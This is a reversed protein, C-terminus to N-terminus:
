SPGPIGPIEANWNVWELWAWFGMWADQPMTNGQGDEQMFHLKVYLVVSDCPDLQEISGPVGDKNGDVGYFNKDLIKIWPSLDTSGEELGFNWNYLKVPITGTNHVDIWLEVTLCPYVNYLGFWLYGDDLKYDAWAVDKGQILNYEFSWELELYGTTVDGEIYVTESWHAYAFGAIGLAMMLIAFTAMLKKTEMRIDSEKEEKQTIKLTGWV